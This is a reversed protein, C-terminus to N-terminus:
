PYSQVSRLDFAGGCNKSDRIAAWLYATPTPLGSVLTPGVTPGATPGSWGSWTGPNTSSNSVATAYFYNPVGQSLTLTRFAQTRCGPDAPWTAPGSCGVGAVAVSIQPPNNYASQFESISTPSWAGGPSPGSYTWQTSITEAKTGTNNAGDTVIVIDNPMCVGSISPRAPNGGMYEQERTTINTNANPKSKLANIQSVSIQSGPAPLTAM